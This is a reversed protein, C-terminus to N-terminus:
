RRVGGPEHYLLRWAIGFAIGLGGVIFFLGRWGFRQTIWFLPVSLFGLGVYQGFSYIGFQRASAGAASVLDGSDPQQRPLVAGRLHRRRYADIGTGNLSRVVGM